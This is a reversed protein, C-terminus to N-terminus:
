KNPFLVYGQQFEVIGVKMNCGVLVLLHICVCVCVCVLFFLVRTNKKSIISVVTTNIEKSILM